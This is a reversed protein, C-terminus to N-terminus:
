VKYKFFYSPMWFANGKSPPFFFFFLCTFCGASTLDLFVASRINWLFFMLFDWSALYPHGVTSVHHHSRIHLAPKPIKTRGAQRTPFPLGAQFFPDYVSALAAAHAPSVWSRERRREEKHYVWTGGMRGKQLLHSSQELINFLIDFSSIKDMSYFHGSLTSEQGLIEFCKSPILFIYNPGNNSFM